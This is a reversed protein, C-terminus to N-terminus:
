YLVPSAPAIREAPIPCALHATPPQGQNTFVFSIIIWGCLQVKHEDYDAVNLTTHTVNLKQLKVLNIHNILNINHCPMSASITNKHLLLLSNMQMLNSNTLDTDIRKPRNRSEELEQSISIQRKLPWISQETYHKITDTRHKM